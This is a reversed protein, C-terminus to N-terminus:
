YLGGTGSGAVSSAGKKRGGPAETRTTRRATPTAILDGARFAEVIVRKDGPKSAEGTDGNIRVLQIGQPIRVPISPTGALAEAMFETFIPAAARM